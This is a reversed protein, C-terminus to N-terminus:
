KWKHLFLRFTMKILIEHNALVLEYNQELDTISFIIETNKPDFPDSSSPVCGGGFTIHM